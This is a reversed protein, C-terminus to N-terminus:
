AYEYGLPLYLKTEFSGFPTVQAEPFERTIADRIWMIILSRTEHEEPTPSMYDVFAKVEENLRIERSATLINSIQQYPLRARRVYRGRQSM